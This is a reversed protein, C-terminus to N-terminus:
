AIWGNTLLEGLLAKFNRRMLLLRRLRKASMLFGFDLLPPRDDLRRVILASHLTADYPYKLPRETWAGRSYSLIGLFLATEVDRGCSHSSTLADREHIMAQASRAIRLARGGPPSAAARRRG